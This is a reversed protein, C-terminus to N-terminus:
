PSNPGLLLEEIREYVRPALLGDNGLEAGGLRGAEILRELAAGTATKSYPWPRVDGGLVRLLGIAVDDVDEPSGPPVLEVEIEHHRVDRGAVRYHVLDLALEAVPIPTADRFVDRAIRHTRRSQFPRFGLRRLTEDPTSCSQVDGTDPPWGGRLALEGIIERLADLSWPREIELREVRGLETARAEGKLAVSTERAVRRLRLACGVQAVDHVATDWYVDSLEVERAKALTFRPIAGATTLQRRIGDRDWGLVLLKAEIERGAGSM